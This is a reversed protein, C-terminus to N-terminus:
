SNQVLVIQLIPHIGGPNNLSFSSNMRNKLTTKTCLVTALAVLFQIYIKGGFLRNKDKKKATM